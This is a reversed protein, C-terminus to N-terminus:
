DATEVISAQSALLPLLAHKLAASGLQKAVYATAGMWLSMERTTLNDLVTWVVLPVNDKLESTRYQALLDFGSGDHLELDLVILRPATVKGDIVQQIAAQAKACESFVRIRHEGMQTLISRITDVHGTDDEIVFVSSDNDSEAAMPIRSGSTAPSASKLQLTSVTSVGRNTQRFWEDIEDSFALVSARSNEAVRRVPFGFQAEYRQLTRVGRGTYQAIEKWSNLFRRQSM